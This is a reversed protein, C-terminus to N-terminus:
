EDSLTQDDSQADVNYNQRSLRSIYTELLEVETPFKANHSLKVM